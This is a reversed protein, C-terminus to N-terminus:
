PKIQFVTGEGSMTGGERTTGYLNGDPAFVVGGLPSLGDPFQGYQFSHLITEHWSSGAPSLEYVTGCVDSDYCGGGAATTGFLNGASDLTIYNPYKGDPTNNFTHLLSEVWTGGSPTLKFVTGCGVGANCASSGGGEETTGYLNGAADFALNGVPEGGDSPYGQFLHLQTETWVGGVQSLKFVTGCGDTCAQVGGGM